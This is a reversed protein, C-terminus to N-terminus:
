SFLDLRNNISPEQEIVEVDTIAQLLLMKEFLTINVIQIM